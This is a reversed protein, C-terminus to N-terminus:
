RVYRCKACPLTSAHGQAHTRTRICDAKPAACTLTPHPDWSHLSSHEEAFDRTRYTVQGGGDGSRGANARMAPMPRERCETSNGCEEGGAGQGSLLLAQNRILVLNILGAHPRPIRQRASTGALRLGRGIGGTDSLKFAWPCTQFQRFRPGLQPCQRPWRSTAAGGGMARLAGHQRRTPSQSPFRYM